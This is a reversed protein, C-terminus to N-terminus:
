VCKDCLWTSNSKKWVYSPTQVCEKHFWEDCRDCQIMMGEEPQRCNCYVNVTVINRATTLKRKRKQHPFPTITQKDLCQALHLRLLNQVYTTEVPDQGTCLSTAFALAFLGCDKYGRQQQVDQFKLKIAKEETCLIGAIESKARAPLDTSPLSDYVNVHTLSNGINSITIWHNGGVHLVQVFENRQINFQFCQGLVTPELGGIHPNQKKLLNQCATIITDGVWKGKLLSLKDTTFLNMDKIWYKTNNDPEEKCNVLDVAASGLKSISNMTCYKM